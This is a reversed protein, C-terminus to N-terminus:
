LKSDLIDMWWMRAEFSSGFVCLAHVRLTSCAVHAVSCAECSVHCEGGGVRGAVHGEVEKWTSM